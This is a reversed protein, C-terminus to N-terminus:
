LIKFSLQKFDKYQRVCLSTKWTQGAVKVFDTHCQFKTLDEKNENDFFFSDAFSSAFKLDNEIHNYLRFTNLGKSKHHSFWHEYYGTNMNNSMFIHDSSRCSTKVKVMLANEEDYSDGWCKVSPTIESPILLGNTNLHEWDTSILNTIFADQNDLLQREILNKYDVSAIAGNAQVQTYLDKLFEVPVLFSVDNGMTSVNIGIVEGSHNLAPGGSMGSNLSASFLIKRYRSNEMLGNFTGEIITMGLDHPNGMSFINMGKDIQSHGLPLYYQPKEDSLLIALDHVIDFHVLKLNRSTDDSGIHEVRYRDPKMIYESVVHYNTVIHGEPSIYFGSGTASKEKTALNIVRIQFVGPRSKEYLGAAENTLLNAHCFPTVFGIHVALVIFTYQCLFFFRDKVKRLPSLNKMSKQM